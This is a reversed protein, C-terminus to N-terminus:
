LTTRTIKQLRYVTSSSKKVLQRGKPIWYKAHLTALTANIGQHGINNHTFRVITRALEHQPLLLIPNAAEFGLHSNALRGCCRYIGHDSVLNLYRYNRLQDPSLIHYYDRLLVNQACTLDQATIEKSTSIYFLERCESLSEADSAGHKFAELRLM